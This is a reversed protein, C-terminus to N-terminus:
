KENKRSKQSSLALTAAPFLKELTIKEKELIIKEKKM